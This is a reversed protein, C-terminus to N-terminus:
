HAVVHSAVFNKADSWKLARMLRQEFDRVVSQLFNLRMLASIIRLVKAFNLTVVDAFQDSVGVQLFNFWFVLKVMKNLWDYKTGFFLILVLLFLYKRLHCFSLDIRLM